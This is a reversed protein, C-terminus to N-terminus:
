HLKHVYKRSHLPTPQVVRAVKYNWTIKLEGEV